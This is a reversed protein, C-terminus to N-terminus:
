LLMAASNNKADGAVSDELDIIITDVALSTAKDLARKNSAPMFLISRNLHM